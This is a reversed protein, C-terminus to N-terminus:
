AKGALANWRRQCEEASVAEIEKQISWEHGFPDQVAASRHGYFQDAPPRVVTAGATAARAVVADVDDVMLSLRVTTGGLTKPAKNMPPYEDAVMILGGNIMIECHGIKGSTPDTIRYREIAGFAKKYFEVAEAAGNIAIAPSVPPYHLSPTSM